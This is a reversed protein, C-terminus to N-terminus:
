RSDHTGNQYGGEYLFYLMLHWNLHLDLLARDEIHFSTNQVNKWTQCWPTKFLWTGYEYWNKTKTKLKHVASARFNPSQTCWVRYILPICCAKVAERFLGPSYEVRERMTSIKHSPNAKSPRYPSAKATFFLRFHKRPREHYLMKFCKSALTSRQTNEASTKVLSVRIRSYEEKM